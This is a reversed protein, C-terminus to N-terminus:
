NFYNEILIIVQSSQYMYTKDVGKREDTLFIAKVPHLDHARAVPTM